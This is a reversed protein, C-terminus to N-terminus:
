RVASGDSSPGTGDDKKDRQCLDQLLHDIGTVALEVIEDRWQLAAREFVQHM